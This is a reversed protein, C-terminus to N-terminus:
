EYKMELRGTIGLRGDPLTQLIFDRVNGVVVHLPQGVRDGVKDVLDIGEVRRLVDLAMPKRTLNAYAERVADETLVVGEEQPGSVLILIRKQAEQVTMPEEMGNPITEKGRRALLALGEGYGVLVRVPGLNGSRVSGRNDSDDRREMGDPIGADAPRWDRGTMNKFHLNWVNIRAPPDGRHRLGCVADRQCGSFSCAFPFGALTLQEEEEEM